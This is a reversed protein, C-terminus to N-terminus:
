AGKLAWALAVGMVAAVLGGTRLREPPAEALTALARQMATPAVAYVLGEVALVVAVGMLFDTATM